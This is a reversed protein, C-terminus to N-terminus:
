VCCTVLPLQQPVASLASFLPEPHYLEGYAHVHHRLELRRHRIDIIVLLMLQIQLCLIPSPYVRALLVSLYAVYGVRYPVGPVARLVPENRGPLKQPPRRQWPHFLRRNGRHPHRVASPVLDSSHHRVSVKGSVIQDPPVSLPHNSHLPAYLESSHALPRDIAM